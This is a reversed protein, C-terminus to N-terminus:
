PSVRRSAPYAPAVAAGIVIARGALLDELAVSEHLKPFFTSDCMLHLRDCRCNRTEDAAYYRLYRRGKFILLARHEHQSSPSVNVYHVVSYRGIQCLRGISTGSTFAVPMEAGSLQERLLQAYFETESRQRAFSPMSLILSVSLITLKRIIM